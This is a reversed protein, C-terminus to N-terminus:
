NLTSSRIIDNSSNAFFFSSTVLRCPSDSLRAPGIKIDFEGVVDSGFVSIRACIGRSKCLIEGGVGIAYCVVANNDLASCLVSYTGETAEEDEYLFLSVAVVSFLCESGRDESNGSCLRRESAVGIIVAFRDCLLLILCTVELVTKKLKKLVCAILM